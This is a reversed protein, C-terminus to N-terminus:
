QRDGTKLSAMHTKLLEFLADVAAELEAAAADSTAPDLGSFTQKQLTEQMETRWHDLDQDTKGAAIAMVAVFRCLLFEIASLRMEDRVIKELSM